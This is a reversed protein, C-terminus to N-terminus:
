QTNDKEDQEHLFRKYYKEFFIKAYIMGDVRALDKTKEEEIYMYNTQEIRAQEKKIEQEFKRVAGKILAVEPTERKMKRKM